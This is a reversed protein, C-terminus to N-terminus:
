DILDYVVTYYPWVDMESGADSSNSYWVLHVSTCWVTNLVYVVGNVHNACGNICIYDSEM